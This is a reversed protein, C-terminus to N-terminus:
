NFAPERFSVRCKLFKGDPYTKGDIGVQEGDVKVVIGALTPCEELRTKIGVV